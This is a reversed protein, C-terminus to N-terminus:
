RLRHLKVQFDDDGSVIMTGQNDKTLDISNIKKSGRYIERGNIAETRNLKSEATLPWVVVRGDDGGSVLKRDDLDFDFALSRVSMEAARWRDHVVCKQEVPENLQSTTNPIVQCQDLNWITIYGDSDSTALLKRSGPAFAIGWIYDNQGQAGGLEQLLVRKPRSKRDSREWRSRDWLILRKYQGASVLINQDESLALARVQYNLRSSLSLDQAPLLQFKSSPSPRVWVRVKGSGHGSFLFRSDKTFVLDFVRDATTDRQDTLEDKKEGTAVDQLQIVGNELGAAVRQEDIPDFRLSRVPKDPVALVGRPKLPKGNCTTSSGETFKGRPELQNGNVQWRRITCDDSGSVVLVANGSFRVSNVLETHAILPPRLLLALLAALLALLALLLWLPIVPLVQLELTQTAPDASGLRQDSLLAKVELRLTKVLGLWPRKTTIELPIKTTEGLGLEADESVMKYTCKQYDSGQLQVNVQQRLNSANKFLLYFVTGKSKWDPLWGGHSPIKQQQPTATFEVFGVPLVELTGEARVPPCNHSSAEVTFPYDQSPAQTASPPQCQFTTEAQAGPDLLLRREASKPLWSPDLGAFRLVADVPQPSLNRVRVPIEVSNRPYVQFRQIPLEVSLVTSLRYPEITLRVLLKREERIQPSFIRVTLNITGVFAPLPTDFIVIKFATIGGPPKAASVEPSLRYWRSGSSRSAGPALVELQFAAFQDSGNIVTVEFSVPPDGPRFTISQTSLSANIVRNEM